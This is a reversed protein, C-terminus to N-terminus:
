SKAKKAERLKRMRERAAAKRAAGRDQTEADTSAVISKLSCLERLRANDARLEALEKEMAEYTRVAHASNAGTRVTNADKNASNAGAAAFLTRRPLQSFPDSKDLAM